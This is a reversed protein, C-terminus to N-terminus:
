DQEERGLEYYIWNLIPNYLKYIYTVYSIISDILQIVEAQYYKFLQTIKSNDFDIKCLVLKVKENM